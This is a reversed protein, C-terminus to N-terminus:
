LLNFFLPMQQNDNTMLSFDSAFTKLGHLLLLTQFSLIVSHLLEFFFSFEM